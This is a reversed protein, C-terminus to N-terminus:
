CKVCYIVYKYMCKGEINFRCKSTNNMQYKQKMLKGLIKIFYDTSGHHM